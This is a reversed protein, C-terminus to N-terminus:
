GGRLDSDGACLHLRDRRDGDRRHPQGPGLGPGHDGPLALRHGDVSKTGSNGEVVSTSSLNVTPVVVPPTVSSMAPDDTRVRLSTFTASGSRGAPRLPRRRCRRQLRLERRLHRRADPQGLRGQADPDAHVDDRGVPGPVASDVVLSGRSDLHGLLVRQGPVDIAVFKTRGRQLLRLRNRRVRGHVAQRHGRELLHQRAPHRRGPGGARLGPGRQGGHRTYGQASSSWSGSIPTDLQQTGTTLDSTGDYTVQPPLVQVRVNDFVGSLTTPAWASWARTSHSRRCRRHLPGRLHLHVASSGDVLLTATTGNM